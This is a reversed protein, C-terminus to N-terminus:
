FQSQPPDVTAKRSLMENKKKKKKIIILGSLNEQFAKTFLPM